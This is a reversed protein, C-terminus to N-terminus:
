NNDNDNPPFYEEFSNQLRRLHETIDHKVNESVAKGSEELYETMTDICDFKNRQVRQYWSKLKLKV